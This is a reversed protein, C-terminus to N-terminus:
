GNIQNESLKGLASKLKKAEVQRGEDTEGDELDFLRQNILDCVFEFEDNDLKNM